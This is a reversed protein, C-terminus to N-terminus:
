KRRIDKRDVYDEGVMPDAVRKVSRMLARAAWIAAAVVLAALLFLAAREWM